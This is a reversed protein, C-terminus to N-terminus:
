LWDLKHGVGRGIEDSVQGIMLAPRDFDRPLPLTEGSAPDVKGNPKEDFITVGVADSMSPQYDKALVVQVSEFHENLFVEFSVTREKMLAVTQPTPEYEIRPSTPDHGVFLVKLDSKETTPAQTSATAAAALALGLPLLTSTLLMHSPQTTVAPAPRPHMRFIGSRM